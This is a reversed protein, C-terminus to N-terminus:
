NELGRTTWSSTMLIYSTGVPSFPPVVQIFVRTSDGKYHGLSLGLGDEMKEM